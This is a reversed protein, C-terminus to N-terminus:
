DARTAEGHKNFLTIKTTPPTHHSVLRLNQNTVNM